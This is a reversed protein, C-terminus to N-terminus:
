LEQDLVFYPRSKFGYYYSTQEDTMSPMKLGVLGSGGGGAGSSNSWGGYSCYMGPWGGGGSSQHRTVEFNDIKDSWVLLSGGGGGGSPVPCGNSVTIWQYTPPNGNHYQCPYVCVREQHSNNGRNGAFGVPGGATGVPGDNYGGSADGWAGYSNAGSTGGNGGHASDGGDLGGGSFGNRFSTGTWGSTNLISSSGEKIEKAKVYLIGGGIAIGNYGSESNQGLLLKNTLSKDVQSLLTPKLNYALGGQVYIRGNESLDLSMASFTVVGGLGTTTSFPTDYTITESVKVSNFDPILILQVYYNSLESKPLITDEIKDQLSISNGNVSTIKTDLYNGMFEYNITPNKSATVLLLVHNGQIFDGYLGLQKNGLNIVTENQSNTSISRVEAYTNINKNSSTLVVDGYTGLGYPNYTYKLHTRAVNFKDLMQNTKDNYIEVSVNREKSFAERDLIYRFEEDDNLKYFVRYTINDTLTYTFEKEKLDEYPTNQIENEINTELTYLSQLNNVNSIKEEHSNSILNGIIVGVAGLIVIGVITSMLSSGLINKKNFPVQCSKYHNTLIGKFKQIKFINM